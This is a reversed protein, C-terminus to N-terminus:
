YLAPAVATLRNCREVEADHDNDFVNTCPIEDSSVASLRSYFVRPLRLWAAYAIMSAAYLAALGIPPKYSSGIESLSIRM